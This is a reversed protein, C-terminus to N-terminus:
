IQKIVSGSKLRVIAGDEELADVGDELVLEVNHNRMHEHVYRWKM